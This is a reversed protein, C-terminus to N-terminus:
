KTSTHQFVDMREAPSRPLREKYSVMEHVVNTVSATSTCSFAGTSSVSSSPTSSSASYNGISALIPFISLKMTSNEKRFLDLRSKLNDVARMDTETIHGLIDEPKRDMLNQAKKKRRHREVAFDLESIKKPSLRRKRPRNWKQMLDTCALQEIEDLFVRSFNELAYCVSAIHKCSARPGKGAVCGCKGFQIDGRNSSIRMIIDYIRDKRMEPLCNCKVIVTVFGSKVKINQVHGEKFM